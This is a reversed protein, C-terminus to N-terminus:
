VTELASVTRLLESLANDIETHIKWQIRSDRALAPFEKDAYSISRRKWELAATRQKVIETAIIKQTQNM